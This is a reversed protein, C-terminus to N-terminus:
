LDFNVSPIPLAPLGNWQWPSIFEEAEAIVTRNQNPIRLNLVARVRGGATLCPTESCILRLDLSSAESKTLGMALAGRELVQNARSTAVIPNESTIYARLSERVLTRAALESNSMTSFQNLFILIPIFLPVALLVFEVSASGKENRLLFNILEKLRNVFWIAM